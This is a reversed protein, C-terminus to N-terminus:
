QFIVLTPVLPFEKIKEDFNRKKSKQIQMVLLIEFINTVKRM